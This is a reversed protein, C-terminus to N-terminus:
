LKIIYLVYANKPRTEAGGAADTRTNDNVGASRQPRGGAVFGDGGLKINHDHSKVEDFQLSGVANGTAGGPAMATRALADPDRLTAGDPMVASGNVGRLFLGRFDPLVFTTSGDGSGYATGIASFLASYQTRSIIGGDCKLWGAPVNSGAFAIVTGPPVLQNLETQLAVALDAKTISGDKVSTSDVSDSSVSEARFAYPATMWQQRPLIESPNAIPAGAAGKTVTMALFVSPSAFAAKLDTTQAGDIATGGGGLILSLAGNKVVVGGFRTAWIPTTGGTAAPWLRLEIEYGSGDPAANGNADTLRGQYNTLAPVGQAIAGSEIGLVCCGILFVSRFGSVIATM